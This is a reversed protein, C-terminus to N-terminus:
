FWRKGDADSSSVSTEVFFTRGGFEKLEENSYIHIERTFIQRIM